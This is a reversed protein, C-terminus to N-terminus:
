RFFCATASSARRSFRWFDHVYGNFFNQVVWFDHGLVRLARFLRDFTMCMFATVRCFVRQLVRLPVRLDGFTM